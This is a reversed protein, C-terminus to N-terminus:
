VRSCGRRVSEGHVSLGADRYSETGGRCSEPALRAVLQWLVGLIIAASPREDLWVQGRMLALNGFAVSGGSCNREGTGCCAPLLGTNSALLALPIVVEPAQLLPAACCKAQSVVVAHGPLRGTPVCCASTTLCRGKGGKRNQAPLMEHVTQRRGAMQVHPAAEPCMRRFARGGVALGSGIERNQWGCGRPAAGFGFEMGHACVYRALSTSRAGRPARRPLRETFRAALVPTLFKSHQAPRSPPPPPSPRGDRQPVRASQRSGFERRTGGLLRVACRESRHRVMPPHQARPDRCSLGLIVYRLWKTKERRRSKTFNFTLKRVYIKPPEYGTQPLSTLNQEPRPWHGHLTLLRGPLGRRHLSLPNPPRPGVFFVIGAHKSNRRSSLATTTANSGGSRRALRRDLVDERCSSAPLPHPPCLGENCYAQGWMKQKPWTQLRGRGAM